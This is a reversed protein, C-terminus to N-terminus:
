RLGEMVTPLSRVAVAMLRELVEAPTADEPVFCEITVLCHPRDITLQRECTSMFHDISDAGFARAIATAEDILLGRKPTANKLKWVAAPSMPYHKSIREALSADSWGRAEQLTRMQEVFKDRWATSGEAPRRM